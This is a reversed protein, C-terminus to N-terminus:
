RHEFSHKGRRARACRSGKKGHGLKFHRREPERQNGIFLSVGKDVEVM